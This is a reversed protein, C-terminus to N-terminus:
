QWIVTLKKIENIIRSKEQNSLNEHKMLVRDERPNLIFCDEVKKKSNQEFMKKYLFLQANYKETYNVRSTKIDMIYFKDKSKLIIDVTGIYDCDYGTYYFTKESYIQDIDYKYIFSNLETIIRKAINLHNQNKCDNVVLNVKFDNRQNISDSIMKHVCEGQKISNDIVEKKIFKNQLYPFCKELIMSVFPLNIKRGDIFNELEMPIDCDEKVMYNFNEDREIIKTIDNLM